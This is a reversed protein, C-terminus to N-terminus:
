RRYLYITHLLGEIDPEDDLTITEDPDWGPIAFDHSVVLSGKKMSKELLPRLMDLARPLLYVTILDPKSFDARYLDTDEIRALAELELEAIRRRSAAVLKSDIEYGVSRAGFTRAALLVLRGDGSGLDYHLEGPKLEGVELMQLAVPMPTPYYPAVNETKEGESQAFAGVAFLGLLLFCRM